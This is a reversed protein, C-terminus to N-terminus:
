RCIPLRTAAAYNNARCSWEVSGDALVNPTLRIMGSRAVHPKVMIAIVGFPHVTVSAVPGGAYDDPNGLGLQALNRPWTGENAYFQDVAAQVPRAREIAELALAQEPPLTAPVAATPEMSLPEPADAPGPYSTAGPTAEPATAYHVAVRYAVLAFVVSLVLAVILYAPSKMMEAKTAAVPGGTCHLWGHRPPSVPGPRAPFGVVVPLVM